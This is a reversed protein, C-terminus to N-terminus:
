PQTAAPRASARRVLVVALLSTALILLAAADVGIAVSPGFASALVGILVGSGLRLGMSTMSYAGLFRGRRDAPAGLQVVAQSTSASTLNGMGAIVLMAVSLVLNHSLAFVILSAAFM